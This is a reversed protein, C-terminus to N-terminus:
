KHSNELYLARRVPMQRLILIDEDEVVADGDPWDKESDTDSHQEWDFDDEPDSLAM